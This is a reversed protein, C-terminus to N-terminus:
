ILSLNCIIQQDMEGLSAMRGDFAMGVCRYSHAKLVETMSPNISIKGVLGVRRPLVTDQERRM